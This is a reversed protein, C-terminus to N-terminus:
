LRSKLMLKQIKKWLLLISEMVEKITASSNPTFNNAFTRNDFM